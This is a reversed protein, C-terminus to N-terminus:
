LQVFFVMSCTDWTVTLHFGAGVRSADDDSSAEWSWLIYETLILFAVALLYHPPRTCHWALSESMSM